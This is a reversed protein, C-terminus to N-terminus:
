SRVSRLAAIFGTPDDLSLTLERIRLPFGLCRGPARPEIRVRVLGQSSGNVLWRGRWGHAGWAMVPGSAPTADVISDLPVEAQFAWGGAGMRVTLSPREIQVSCHRPGALLPTTLVAIFRNFSLSFTDAGM